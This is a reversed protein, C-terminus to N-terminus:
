EPRQVDVSVIAGPRIFREDIQPWEGKASAMEVHRVMDRAIQVASDRGEASGVLIDDGGHVRLIVRRSDPAGFERRSTAPAPAPDVVEPAPDVLALDRGGYGSDRNGFITM